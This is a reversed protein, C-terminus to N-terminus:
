SQEEKLYDIIQNISELFATEVESLMDLQKVSFKEPLEPKKLKEEQKPPEPIEMWHTVDNLYHWESEYYRATDLYGTNIVVLVKNTHEPLRDEVSVWGSEIKRRVTYHAKTIEDGPHNIEIWDGNYPDYYEDGEIKIEGVELLRYM